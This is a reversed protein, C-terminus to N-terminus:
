ARQRTASYESFIGMSRTRTVEEFGAERMADMIVEPRVCDRTTEWYYRFLQATKASGTRVRIVAPALRGMYAGLFARALRSEPATIELILLKGGPRLVRHCESFVVGLDAFHRLAFGISIRDFSQSAFPLAEAPAQVKPSRTVGSRLMGISPDMGVIARPEGTLEAAARAVVGTGSALDLLRMGRELGARKLAERRYWDGSGFSMFRISWDYWPATEDFIDRVFEERREPDGYYDTLPPHPPIVPGM